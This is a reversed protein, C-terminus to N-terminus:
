SNVIQQMRHINTGKLKQVTHTFMVVGGDSVRAVCPVRPQSLATAEWAALALHFCKIGLPSLQKPAAPLGTHALVPLATGKGPEHPAPACCAPSYQVAWWSPLLPQPLLQGESSGVVSAGCTDMASCGWYCQTHGHWPGASLGRVAAEPWMCPLCWLANDRGRGPVM